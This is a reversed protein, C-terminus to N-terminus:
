QFSNLPTAGVRQSPSDATVLQPFERELALLERFLGDYENDSITPADLVYYHYDHQTIEQTLQQHRVQAVGLSDQPHNPPDLDFLGSQKEM